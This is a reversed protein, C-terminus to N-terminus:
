LERHYTKASCKEHHLDVLFTYILTLTINKPKGIIHRREVKEMIDSYGDGGRALFDNTIIKYLKDDILDVYHPTACDACRVKLEVLRSGAPKSVDYAVRM